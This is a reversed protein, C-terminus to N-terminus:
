RVRRLFVIIEILKGDFFPHFLLKVILSFVKWKNLSGFKFIKNLLTPKWIKKRHSYLVSIWVKKRMNNM